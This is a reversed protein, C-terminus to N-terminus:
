QEVTEERVIKAVITELYDCNAKADYILENVWDNAEQENDHYEIDFGDYRGCTLSIYDMKIMLGYGLKRMDSLIRFILM